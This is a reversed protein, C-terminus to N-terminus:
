AAGRGMYSAMEVLRRAVNKLAAALNEDVLNDKDDFAQASRGVTVQEPLVLAGCGLELVQRLAMLGRIGGAGGPSASGLAFARNKFVTYSAEGKDRPRSLWDIANKILPSVSASYEPSAIFIGHHATVMKRLEAAPLPMGESLLDADFIPLPYDAFSIRTVDGDALTLEKSALAALRANSSGTRLSGAMVLIKPAPM